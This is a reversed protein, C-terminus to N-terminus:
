RPFRESHSVHVYVGKKSLVISITFEWFISSQVFSHIYTHIYTHILTPWLIRGKCRSRWHDTTSGRKILMKNIRYKSHFTPSQKHPRWLLWKTGYLVPGPSSIRFLRHGWLSMPYTHSIWRRSPVRRLHPAMQWDLEFLHGKLYCHGTFLGVVWRLQERNLKL